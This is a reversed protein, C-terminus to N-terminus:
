SCLPQHSASLIALTLSARPGAKRAFLKLDQVAERFVALNYRRLNFKFPFISLPEYYKPKLRKTGSPKLTPKTPHPHVVRGPPRRVLAGGAATPAAGCPTAACTSNSLLLQIM